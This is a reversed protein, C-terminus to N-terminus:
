YTFNLIHYDIIEVQPLTNNNHMQNLTHTAYFVGIEDHAAIIAHNGKTTLYYAGSVNKIKNKYKKFTKNEPKIITLNLKEIIIDDSTSNISQPRPFIREIQSHRQLCLTALLAILLSKKM